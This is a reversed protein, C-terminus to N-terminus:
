YIKIKKEEKEVKKSGRKGEDPVARSEKREESETRRENRKNLLAAPLLTKLPLVDNPDVM